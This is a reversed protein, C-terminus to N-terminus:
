HGKWPAREKGHRVFRTIPDWFLVALGLALLIAVPFVMVMLNVPFDRDYVQAQVAPRCVSCAFVPAGALLLGAAPLLRARGPINCTIASLAPM